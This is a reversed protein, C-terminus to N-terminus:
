FALPVQDPYASEGGSSDSDSLQYSVSNVMEGEDILPNNEGKRRITSPANPPTMVNRMVGKMVRVTEKGIEHWFEEGVIGADLLEPVLEPFVVEEMTRATRAVFAWTVYAEGTEWHEPSRPDQAHWRHELVRSALAKEESVGVGVGVGVEVGNQCTEQINDIHQVLGEMNKMTVKIM